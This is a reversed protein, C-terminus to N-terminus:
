GWNALLVLVDTIGVTGDGDIDEPGCTDGCPGWSGLLALFDAIGVIGDGDIDGLRLFEDAGLDLLGGVVRQDGDIDTENPGPIFAPDGADIVSSTASLHYDGGGPDVFLPDVDINDPGFTLQSPSCCSTDISVDGQGGQLDCFDVTAIAPNNFGSDLLLQPGEPAVNGWLVCNRISTPDTGFVRIGGGGFETATNDTVMCNRITMPVDSECRFGGAGTSSTNGTISCNAVEATAGGFNGHLVLGTEGNEAITCGSVEILDGKVIVGSGGNGTFSCGQVTTTTSGYVTMNVGAATNDSITSDMVALDDIFLIHLGAGLNNIIRCNIVALDAEELPFNDSQIIGGSVPAIHDSFICNRVTAGSGNLLYLGPGDTAFGNIIKLGDIISDTTEGSQFIFGRGGQDCDIITTAVVAPDDPDSSRVTIARGGFDVDRNGLGTYSGPAIIVTDGDAAADVAAQVTTYDEPVNFIAGEAVASQGFSVTITLLAAFTLRVDGQRTLM